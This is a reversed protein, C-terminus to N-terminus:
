IDLVFRVEVVGSAKRIEMRHYTVAKVGVRSPHKEPDFKEGHVKAKLRYAGSTRELQAVEFKCYLRGETDFRVLLAELWNYLLAKEDFGEVELTEVLLPEVKGTDTM